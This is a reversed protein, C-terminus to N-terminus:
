LYASLDYHQYTRNLIIGNKETLRISTGPSQREEIAVEETGKKEERAVGIRNITPIPIAPQIILM